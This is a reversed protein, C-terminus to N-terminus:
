QCVRPTSWDGRESTCSPSALLAKLRTESCCLRDGQAEHSALNIQTTYEFRAEITAIVSKFVESGTPASFPIRIRIPYIGGSRAPSPVAESAYRKYPLVLHVMHEVLFIFSFFGQYIYLM